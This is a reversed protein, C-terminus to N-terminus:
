FTVFLYASLAAILTLTANILPSLSKRGASKMLSSQITKDTSTKGAKSKPCVPCVPCDLPSSSPQSTPIPSDSPQLSSSPNSSPSEEPSTSPIVSPITSPPDSPSSSPNSSPSEEPCIKPSTVGLIHKKVSWLAGYPNRKVEGDYKFTYGGPSYM